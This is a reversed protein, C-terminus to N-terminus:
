FACRPSLLPFINQMEAENHSDIFVALALNQNHGLLLLHSLHSPFLRNLNLHNTTLLLWSHKFLGKPVSSWM